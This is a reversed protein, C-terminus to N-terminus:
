GSTTSPTSAVTTADSGTGSRPASQPPARTGRRAAKAEVLLRTLGLASGRTEAERLLGDARLCDEAGGRRLLARGHDLLTRAAFARAGIGECHALARAFWSEAEDYRGLLACLLGLIRAAPGVYLVGDGVVLGHCAVPQLADLLLPAARVDGLTACAEGLMALSPRWGETGELGALGGALLHDIERQADERQGREALLLALWARPGQLTTYREMVLRIPAEMEDLRDQERRLLFFLTALVSPAVSDPVKAALPLAALATAEVQALEGRLLQQMAHQIPVLWEFAPIRLRESLADYCALEVDLETGRGLELLPAIRQGRAVIELLADGTRAALAVSEATLALREEPPSLGRLRLTRNLALLSEIIVRPDGLSRARALAQTALTVAEDQRRPASAVFAALRAMLRARTRLAGEPQAALATELVSCCAEEVAPVSSQPIAAYALAAEAMREADGQARAAELAARFSERARVFDGLGFHRARGLGFLVGYRVLPPLAAPDALAAAREYHGGAEEYAMREMLTDGARLLWRVAADTAGVSAAAAYHNAIAAVPPETDRASQAELAEGLARHLRACRLAPLEAVITERILAHAFRLRGVAGATEDLFRAALAEELGDLVADPGAEFARQLLAVDFEAGAVAALDLVDRATDGLQSLRGAVVQRVAQPVGALTERWSAPASALRAALERAIQVVYFPNGASREHVAGVLEPGAAADLLSSLLAGVGDRSLRGVAMTEGAGHRTLEGLLSPLPHDRAVRADRYAGAILIPHHALDALLFEVLRLSGAAAWHLDDLLLVLPREQAANVLARKVAEFLRWRAEPSAAASADAEPLAPLRERLSPVLQALWPGASAVRALESDSSATLLEDLAQSWLAFAPGESERASGRAVRAGAARAADALEDLLRTKGVGAEGEFLLARGRGGALGDLAAQIRELQLERGYLPGRATAGARPRMRRRPPRARVEVAAVFRFGVARVTEIVRQQRGHDGVAERAMKVAHFLADDSVVVDPWLYAVLEERPVLRERHRALYFLLALPKPQTPVRVGLRRLEFREPDLEYEAFVLAAPAERAGENRRDSAAPDQQVPDPSTTGDGDHTRM